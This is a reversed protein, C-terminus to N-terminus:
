MENDISSIYGNKKKRDCVKCLVFYFEDISPINKIIRFQKQMSKKVTSYFLCKTFQFDSLFVPGVHEFACQLLLTATRFTIRQTYVEMSM